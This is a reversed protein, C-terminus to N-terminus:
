LIWFFFINERDKRTHSQLCWYSAKGEKWKKQLNNKKNQGEEGKEQINYINYAV